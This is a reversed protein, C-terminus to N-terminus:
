LGRPLCRLYGDKVLVVEQCRLRHHVQNVQTLLVKNSLLVLPQSFDCFPHGIVVRTRYHGVAGLEFRSQLCKVSVFGTFGVELVLIAGSALDILDDGTPVVAKVQDVVEGTTWVLDPAPGDAFAGLCGLCGANDVGVELTTEDARFRIVVSVNDLEAGFVFDLSVPFVMDNVFEKKEKAERNPNKFVVDEDWRRSPASKALLPNQSLIKERGEESALTEQIERQRAEEKETKIKELERLLMAEDDSESDDDAEGGAGCDDSDEPFANVDQNLLKVADELPLFNRTVGIKEELENKARYDNEMNELKERLVRKHDSTKLAKSEGEATPMDVPARRKLETHSPLDRSSVKLTGFNAGPSRGIATHWTPRHATSM